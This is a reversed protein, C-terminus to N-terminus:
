KKQSYKLMDHAKGCALMKDPPIFRYLEEGRAKRVKALKATSQARMADTTCGCFLIRDQEPVKQDELQLTCGLYPFLVAETPLDLTKSYPTDTPPKDEKVTKAAFALCTQLEKQQKTADFQLAILKKSNDKVSTREWDFMCGCFKSAEWGDMDPNNIAKVCEEVGNALAAASTKAPQHENPPEKDIDALASGSCVVLAVVGVLKKM